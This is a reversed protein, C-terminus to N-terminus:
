LYDYKAWEFMVHWCWRVWGSLVACLWVLRVLNGVPEWRNSVDRCWKVEWIIRKPLYQFSETEKSEPSEQTEEANCVLRYLEDAGGSIVSLNSQVSAKKFVPGSCVAPDNLFLNWRTWVLCQWKVRRPPLWETYLYEARCKDTSEQLLAHLLSGTSCSFLVHAVALFGYGNDQCAHKENAARRSQLQM